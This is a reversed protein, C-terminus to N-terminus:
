LWASVKSAVGCKRRPWGIDESQYYERKELQSRAKEVTKSYSSAQKHEEDEFYLKIDSYLNAHNGKVALVYEGKQRVIQEAIKKQTGMADITIISNQITLSSLLEPIAIIENEKEHVVKQGFCVGDEKSWASVVHLARNEKVASGRM